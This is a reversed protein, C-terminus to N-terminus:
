AAGLIRMAAAHAAGTLNAPDVLTYSIHTGLGANSQQRVAGLFGTLHTTFQFVQCGASAAEARDAGIADHINIKTSAPAPLIETTPRMVEDKDADRWIRLPGDQVMGPRGRHLGLVHSRPYHGPVLIACGAPNLPDRLWKRSPDTTIPAKLAVGVGKPHTFAWVMVDDFAIAAPQNPVWPRRIGLVNLDNPKEFWPAGVALRVTRADNYYFGLLPDPAIM